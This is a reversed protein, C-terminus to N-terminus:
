PSLSGGHKDQRTHAIGRGTDIVSIEVGGEERQAAVTINGQATFKVANGILNKLITKLKERDTELPPLNTAIKWTFVLGSQERLGELEQELANFVEAVRVEQKIVQMGGADLRSTELVASVLALLERANSEMRHLIGRQKTPLPGFAGDRLLDLYGLIVGLPTRLEHSMTALFEDKVRSAAEATEKASRLDKELEERETIDRFVMVAGHLTGDKGRIPSGTDAVAIERGDRALLLTHNALGIVSGERLVRRIPSDIVCRNTANILRLVEEVDRGLAAQATWGTLREAEPNMFTIAAETDTAMVADGISSLTVNLWLSKQQILREVRRRDTVNEMALLIMPPHENLSEVRRANIQMTKRAGTPLLIEVDFDEFSTNQLLIEELLHRLRPVNWQGAGLDSFFAHETEEPTTHFFHYFARNASIVRLDAALVVLPERITEIINQAYLQAYPLAEETQQQATTAATLHAVQQRLADVEAVLQSRTPRPKAM